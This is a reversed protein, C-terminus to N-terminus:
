KASWMSTDQTRVQCRQDDWPCLQVYGCSGEQWWYSKSHHHCIHLHHDSGLLKQHLWLQSVSILLNLSILEVSILSLYLTTTTEPPNPSHHWSFFLVVCYCCLTCSLLPSHPLWCCVTTVTTASYVAILSFLSWTFTLNNCLPMLTVLMWGFRQLLYM